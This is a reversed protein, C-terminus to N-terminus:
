PALHVVAYLRAETPSLMWGNVEVIRGAELDARHAATIAEPTDPLAELLKALSPEPRQADLWAEGLRSAEARHTRGSALATARADLEPDRGRCGVLVGVALAFLADRRRPHFADGIM